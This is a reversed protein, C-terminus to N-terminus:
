SEYVEETYAPLTFRIDTGQPRENMWIRGGHAEIITRSIALGLGMGSDKTTAFPTFLRSAMEAPIGPGTDQVAIEISDPDDSARAASIAVTRATDNTAKMAEMSNRVLNLLVQEIQIPDAFVPPLDDAIRVAIRVRNQVAEDRVLDLLAKFVRTLEIKAPRTDGRRLFERTSRIIEGARMAQQVTQEILGQAQRRAAAEDLAPAELLAQCARAFSVLATLPQNIEHALAAALEGTATLRAAHALEAEHEKLWREAQKRASIDRAVAVYISRGDTRAVGIALEVIFSTGDLRHATLEGGTIPASTMPQVGPLLTQLSVGVLRRTGSGFMDEAARNASTVIGDEGVTFIADPATSVVTQLRAESSRLSSEARQREDVVSGLLLGTVAVALMLLQFQTLVTADYGKLQIALILGLQTAGVGWTAGKLGSRLAIWILPLFLVYSFEFHDTSELGFILWLGGAIAALQLAYEAGDRRRPWRQWPRRDFLLLLFPTLVAIGIVDGVWFHLAAEAFASWELLGAAAFIAVVIAAVAMTSVLVVGLFHLLDRHGDLRLSGLLHRRLVVAAATYGATIAVATFATALPVSSLGRFLVDALIIAAFYAPAFRRGHRLLLALSLGAPPNWPSILLGGFTHILSVWDLAIYCAFYLAIAAASPLKPDSRPISNARTPM